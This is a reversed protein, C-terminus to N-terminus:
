GSESVLMAAVILAGGLAKLPLLVEGGLTWAFLAAFVPEMTFILTTRVPDVVRQAYLQIVFASLTPFLALLVVIWVAGANAAGLPVRLLPAALLSLAGIVLTQQFCLALPSLGEAMYRGAYIVHLAYTVAAALTLVDGLNASRVGGTLLWLGGLAILVAALHRPRARQRFLLWAALPTFVIFLGTIFGSNSASTYVLGVTQAVYLVWLILGLSLGAKWGGLLAALRGGRPSRLVLWLGLVVAAITFRWGVLALPHISALVGKVIFFTSGWVAAAYLLGAEAILRARRARVPAAEATGAM